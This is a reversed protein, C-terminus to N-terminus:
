GLGYFQSATKGMVLAQEDASLSSIATLLAVHVQEYSAALECVPWDSGFLCRGPGFADLAIDIYPAIDAPTWRNWDAETVMGSLKCFVNPSDAARRFAQEWEALGGTRIRPKAIHDIVMLLDPLESALRPVHRLHQPRLLLDFPVGARELCRLGRLVEAGILFDPDSEEHTLHRVGVFKPNQRFEALQSACNPSALDVWGVVGLIFPNGAALKLAWRNEALDHQTQVFVTGDVGTAQLHPLLDAPTYTRCIARHEPTRLWDDRFKGLEWFHQHADIVRSM